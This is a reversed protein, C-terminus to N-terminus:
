IISITKASFLVMAAMPLLELTAMYVLLYLLAIPKRVFQRVGRYMWLLFFAGGLIGLLWGSAVPSDIHVFLLLLPYLVVMALTCLNSYHEGAEGYSRTLRFTYDVLLILLIKVILVGLIIGCVAAFAAGSFRDEPRFCLCLGMALTGIRFLTIFLQALYNVPADKYTREAHVTLSSAAQSIVGPQLWESLLAMVLLLLMTWGCWPATLPSIIHPLSTLM